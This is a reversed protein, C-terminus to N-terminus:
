RSIWRGPSVVMREDTLNFATTVLPYRLPTIDVV